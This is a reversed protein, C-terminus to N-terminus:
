IDGRSVLLRLHSASLGSLQAAERLSILDDLSPKDLNSDGASHRM